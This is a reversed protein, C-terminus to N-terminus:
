PPSLWYAIPLWVLLILRTEGTALVILAKKQGNRFSNELESIAEYQCDRLGKKKLRLCVLTLIM